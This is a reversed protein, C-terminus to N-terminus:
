QHLFIVALAARSAKNQEATSM